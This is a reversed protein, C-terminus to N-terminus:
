FLTCKQPNPDFDANGPCSTGYLSTGFLYKNRVADNEKKLNYTVSRRQPGLRILPPRDKSITDQEKSSESKKVKKKDPQLGLERGGSTVSSNFKPIRFVLNRVLKTKWQYICCLPIKMALLESDPAV